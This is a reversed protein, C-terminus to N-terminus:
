CIGDVEGSFGASLVPTDNDGFTIVSALLSNEEGDPDPPSAHLATLLQGGGLFPNRRRDRCRLEKAVYMTDQQKPIGRHLIVGPRNM